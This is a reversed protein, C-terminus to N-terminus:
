SEQPKQVSFIIKEERSKKKKPGSIETTRGLEVHKIGFHQPIGLLMRLVVTVENHTHGPEAGEERLQVLAYLVFDDFACQLFEALEFCVAPPLCLRAGPPM